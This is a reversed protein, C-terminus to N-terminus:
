LLRRLPVTDFQIGLPQDVDRAVALLDPDVLRGQGVEYEIHRDSGPKELETTLQYTRDPRREEYMAPPRLVIDHSEAVARLHTPANPDALVDEAWTHMNDRPGVFSVSGADEEENVYPVTVGKRAVVREGWGNADDDAVISRPARRDQQWFNVDPKRLAAPQPGHNPFQLPSAKRPPDYIRAPALKFQGSLRYPHVNWTDVGYRVQSAGREEASTYTGSHIPHDAYPEHPKPDGTGHFAVDPESIWSRPDYNREATYPAPDFLHPQAM